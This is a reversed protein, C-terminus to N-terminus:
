CKRLCIMGFPGKRGASNIGVFNEVFASLASKPLMKQSEDFRFPRLREEGFVEIM